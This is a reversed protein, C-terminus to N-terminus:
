IVLHQFVTIRDLQPLFLSTNGHPTFSALATAADDCIIIDWSSVDIAVPLSVGETPSTLVPTVWNCCNGKRPTTLRICKPCDSGSETSKDAAEVTAAEQHRCCKRVDNASDNSKAQPKRFCCECFILGQAQACRCYMRPLSAALTFPIMAWVLAKWFYCQGRFM